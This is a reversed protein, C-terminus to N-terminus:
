ETFAGSSAVRRLKKLAGKEIQRIREHTVGVISAVERLTFTYGMKDNLASLIALNANLEKTKKRNSFSNQKAVIPRGLSWYQLVTQVSLGTEESLRAAENRCYKRKGGMLFFPPLM